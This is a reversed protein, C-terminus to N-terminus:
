GALGNISSDDYREFPQHIWPNDPLYNVYYDPRMVSCAKYWIVATRVATVAPFHTGLHAQVRKLTVGSDVLDDVLLIQGSLPGAASTINDAIRLEGQATGAADRYSSVALILLPKRFLRSLVDGIRLGGRALCLVQDFPYGSAHISRALQEIHRHYADWSVRLHAAM